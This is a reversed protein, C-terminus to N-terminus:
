IAQVAQLQYKRLFCLKNIEIFTQRKQENHCTPDAKYDSKYTLVVYNQALYKVIMSDQNPMFSDYGKATVPSPFRSIIHPNGRELDWCYHINGNSLIVFRCNQAAAYKRSQEKSFLPNKDEAKGELVIFPFGQADFM